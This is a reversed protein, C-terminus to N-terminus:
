QLFTAASRFSVPDSFILSMKTTKQECRNGRRSFFGKSSESMLCMQETWFYASKSFKMTKSSFFENKTSPMLFDVGFRSWVWVIYTKLLNELTDRWWFIYKEDFFM